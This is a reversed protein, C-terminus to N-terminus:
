NESLKTHTPLVITKFLEKNFGRWVFLHKLNDNPDCILVELQTNNRISLVEGINNHSCNLNKLKVNKDLDLTVIYNGSCSFTNLEKNNSIDITSLKNNNCTFFELKNLKSIDLKNFNSQDVRLTTINVNNSVDLKEIKSIWSLDLTSLAINKSIDLSTLANLHSGKFSRLKTHPSLDITEIYYNDVCILEELNKFVEIGKLSRIGNIKSIDISKVNNIENQSLKGNGDKDFSSSCYEKFYSDTFITLEIESPIGDDAPDVKDDSSCATFLCTLILLLYTKKM